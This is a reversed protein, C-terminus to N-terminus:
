ASRVSGSPYRKSAEPHVVIEVTKADGHVHVRVGDPHDALLRVFSLVAEAIRKM